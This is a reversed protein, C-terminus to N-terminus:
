TPCQAIAPLVAGWGVPLMSSRVGQQRDKALSQENEDATPKCEPVKEQGVEQAHDDSSESTGGWDPDFDNGPGFDSTPLIPWSQASDTLEQLIEERVDHAALLSAALTAVEHHKEQEENFVQNGERHLRAEVM